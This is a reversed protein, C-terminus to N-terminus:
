NLVVSKQKSIKFNSLKKNQLFLVAISLGPCAPNVRTGSTLEPLTRPRMHLRLRKVNGNLLIRPQVATVHFSLGSVEGHPTERLFNEKKRSL